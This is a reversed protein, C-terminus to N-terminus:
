LEENVFLNLKQDIIEELQKESLEKTKALLQEQTEEDVETQKREITSNGEVKVDLLLEALYDVLNKLTPYKFTLTSPLECGLSKQLFSRLEVSMLSDIGLEFFGQSFDINIFSNLGLVQAVQQRVHVELLRRQESPILMKLHELFDSKLAPVTNVTKEKWDALFRWQTVRDQWNLWNIPLVGVQVESFNMLKELSELFKEPTIAEIGLKQQLRIDAGKEAAEGVVSVAGWNISLGTLSMAQRYHALCDLFANAAAHNGQGASGLLSAGSSFLIFFDLPQNQTLKHLIWAGEVKPAMVQEFSSWSQNVLVGDSLMGASHIIGALPFTSTSDIKALVKTMSDVESVDALEVVVSAGAEELLKLKNESFEDPPRRSVLVLHKAGKKVMWDAVLLGLGGLGGTILYSANQSFAVSKESKKPSSAVLRSIYRSNERFAVQDEQDESYIEEFLKLAQDEVSQCPDLDVQVCKLEPHELGIVKGMGWLSSQAIGSIVCNTEPVPQSGCTVLWLKPSETLRGKVLAQVLSLTTGCGRQSLKKLDQSSIDKGVMAETPWLHVIGYISPLNTSIEAILQEFEEPKDPNITFEALSGSDSLYKYEEGIFVLTCNDGLSQLQSALHQAYGQNDALILWNKNSKSSVVIDDNNARAVIVAQNSLVEPMGKIEPLTVVQGFGKEKLVQQWKFRSLLPYDPRLEYDRFKWWGELLGFILDVWRNQTTAEYLILIGGPALLKRVHSLVQKINTTAHLVNAAIIIDNQHSDFGQSSPDIEIDLTRYNVFPYDHFKEQAKTIFLGGIDSFTYDIQHPNLHPLIYSTTGGTGAGIELMRIGRQLSLKEIAQSIVKQVLTNMIKATPSEEYLQTTTTLDGEPFLLQVPDKVGKLVESLQTGCRNLLSLEAKADPYQILLTQSKEEPNSKKLPQLLQWQEEKKELIGEEALIKLIRKFLQRQNTDIGLHKSATDTSFCEMQKYNWGLDIIAKVIYDLSLEELSSEIQSSNEGITTVLEELDPALQQEIERPTLLDNTPLLKGFRSQPKWAVSYFWNNILEVQNEILTQPSVLRLKLGEVQAIIEGELNTLTVQANLNEEDKQDSETIVAIAWLSLGPPNYVKLRNIGIPLYTQQNDTKPLIQFILQLAADLLAPHIYYHTAEAVLELPLEIKSIAQNTSSWLQKIGQFNSRYDIGLQQCKQYHQKIEISETCDSLYKEIDIKQITSLNKLPKIKGEVHLNWDSFSEEKKSFVEFKYTDIDSKSLITQVLISQTEPLILGRSIIVNEIVIHLTSFLTKAAYLGMELYGTAPFLNNEFVRHHSLYAPSKATLHAQFYYRNELGALQLKQGLLPHIITATLNSTSLKSQIETEIWYSQRQFPYTPLVVKNRRDDGEFGLWDIDVGQVYLKGLSCLMQEWAGVEERLS